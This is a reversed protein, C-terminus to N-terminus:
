PTKALGHCRKKVTTGYKGQASALIGYVGLECFCEPSKLESVVVEIVQASSLEKLVDCVPQTDLM